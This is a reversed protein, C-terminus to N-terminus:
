IENLSEIVASRIYLYRPVMYITLIYLYKGMYLVIVRSCVSCEIFFRFRGLFRFLFKEHSTADMLRIAGPM